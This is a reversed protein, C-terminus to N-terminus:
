KEEIAEILDLIIANVTTQDFGGVENIPKSDRFSEEVMDQLQRATFGCYMREIVM